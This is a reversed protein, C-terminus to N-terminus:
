IETEAGLTGVITSGVDLEDLVGAIGVIMSGPVLGDLDAGATGVILIGDILSGFDPEVGEIGVIECGLEDCDVALGSGSGLVADL